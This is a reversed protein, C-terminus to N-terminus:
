ADYVNQRNIVEQVKSEPIKRQNAIGQVLLDHIQSLYNRMQFKNEASFGDLRYPETAGKYKGAYFINFDIELKDLINNFFPAYM